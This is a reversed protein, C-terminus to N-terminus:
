HHGSTADKMGLKRTGYFSSLGGRGPHGNGLIQLLSTLPGYFGIDFVNLRIVFILVHLGGIILFRLTRMKLKFTPEFDKIKKAM